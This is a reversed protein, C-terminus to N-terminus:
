FQKIAQLHINTKEESLQVSKDYDEAWLNFGQKNLMYGGSFHLTGTFM